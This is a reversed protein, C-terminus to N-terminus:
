KAQAGVAGTTNAPRAQANLADAELRRQEQIREINNTSIMGLPARPAAPVPKPKPPLQAQAKAMGPDNTNTTIAETAPKAAPPKPQVDNTSVLAAPDAAAQSNDAKKRGM